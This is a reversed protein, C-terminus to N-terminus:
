LMKKNKKLYFTKFQEWDYECRIINFTYGNDYAWYMFEIQQPRLKGTPTKVEVFHVTGNKPFILLDPLGARQRKNGRTRGKQDHFFKIGMSKLDANIFSQLESETM